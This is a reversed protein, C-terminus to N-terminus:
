TREIVLLTQMNYMIAMGGGTTMHGYRVRGCMDEIVCFWIDDMVGRNM